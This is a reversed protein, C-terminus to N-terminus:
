SLAEPRPCRRSIATVAGEPWDERHWCFSNRDPMALRWVVPKGAPDLRTEGDYQLLIAHGYYSLSIVSRSIGDEGPSLSERNLMESVYVNKGDRGREITIRIAMKECQLKPTTEGELTTEMAWVGPLRKMIQDDNLWQQAHAPSSLGCLVFALASLFLRM